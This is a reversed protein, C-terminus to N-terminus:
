LQAEKGLPVHHVEPKRVCHEVHVHSLCVEPHEDRGVLGHGPRGPDGEVLHGSVAGSSCVEDLYYVIALM